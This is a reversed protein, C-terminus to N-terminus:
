SIYSIKYEFKKWEWEDAQRHIFSLAPKVFAIFLHTPNAQLPLVTTSCAVSSGLHLSEFGSVVPVQLFSCFLKAVIALTLSLLQITLKSM